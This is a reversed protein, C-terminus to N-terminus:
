RQFADCLALRRQCASAAVDELQPLTLDESILLVKIDCDSCKAASTGLYLSEKEYFCQMVRSPNTTWMGKGPAHCFM